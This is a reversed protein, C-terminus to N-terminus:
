LSRWFILLNLNVFCCSQVHMMSKQVNRQRRQVVKVHFHRIEHKTSSKFVLCRSQKRKRCKSVTKLSEVRSFHNFCEVCQVLHILRSLSQPLTFESKLHRKRLRRQWRQKLERNHLQQVSPDQHQHTTQEWSWLRESLQWFGSGQDIFLISLRSLM